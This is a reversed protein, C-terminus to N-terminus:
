PSIGLGIDIGFITTIIQAIWFSAFLILFGILANTVRKKGSEVSKSSAAGFFVELSGWVLMVFLILGAFGFIFPFARNIIGAPTNYVDYVAKQINGVMGGIGGSGADNAGFIVQNFDWFEVNQIGDGGDM